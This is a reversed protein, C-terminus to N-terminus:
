HRRRSKWVLIPLAKQSNFWPKNQCGKNSIEGIGNDAQILM